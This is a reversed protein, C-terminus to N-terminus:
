GLAVMEISPCESAQAGLWSRLSATAEVDNRNYTLLWRRAAEALDPDAPSVAQEYYVMSIDGGPDEVEWSFGNLPAVKKLGVSGGTLLQSDFVKLLDVWEESALLAEVEDRLGLSGGVRRMQTDEAAENYCYARLILGRDRAVARLEGLWSWFEGFVEAELEPSLPVWSVFSRYGDPIGFRGTRDTVLAGWLYVGEEINEMDIDVEVDGRPVQVTGVGRRRYARASGLAARAMDVQEPLASPAEDCYAATVSCLSRADSVTVVGAEHLRALQATKRRGIVNEVPATGPLQGVAALLPRLDVGQSVLTATRHDLLALARRDTVGHARHLRFGAWGTRPLLSVDGYGASLEGECWEWWPCTSCEATRVPVVVLGASEDAQHEITAAIIDLRFDFEFDYVEMTSRRKQKGSSSPTLWIPADLDYWVVQGETGIIGCYRGDPTGVGATELMRQYHALQLLDARRKRAWGPAAQADELAPAELSSCAADTGAPGPEQTSHAKM